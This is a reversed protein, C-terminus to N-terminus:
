LRYKAAISRLEEEAERPPVTLLSVTITLISSILFAPVLEYILSKLSPVLYWVITVATGSIFGIALIILLYLGFALITLPNAQFTLRAAEEM